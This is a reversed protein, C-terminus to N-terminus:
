SSVGLGGMGLAEHVAVAAWTPCAARAAVAAGALAEAAGSVLHRAASDLGLPTLAAIAQPTTHGLHM